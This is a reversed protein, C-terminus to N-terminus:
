KQWILLSLTTPAGRRLIIGQQLSPLLWGQATTMQSPLKNTKDSRSLELTCDNEGALDRCLFAATKGSCCCCCQAPGLWRNPRGQAGRACPSTELLLLLNETIFEPTCRFSVVEDPASNEDREWLFGVIRWGHFKNNRRRRGRTTHSREDKNADKNNRGLGAKAVLPARATDWKTGM